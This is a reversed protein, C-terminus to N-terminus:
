DRVYAMSLEDSTPSGTYTKEIYIKYYGTPFSLPISYELLLVNNYDSHLSKIPTGDPKTFLISYTSSFYMLNDDSPDYVQNRLWALAFTFDTGPTLYINFTKPYSESNRTWRTSYDITLAKEIDLLGAGSYDDLGSAELTEISALFENNASATLIAITREPHLILDAKSEWLLAIAGTVIPAAYSTGQLGITDDIVMKEGPAVINPKDALDDYFESVSSFSAIENGEMNTAAVTIINSALGPSTISRNTCVDASNGASKVITLNYQDIVMDIYQSHSDYGVNCTKDLSISMNILRINSSIMKEIGRMFDESKNDKDLLYSYLDANYAVGEKGAIVAGVQTAHSTNTNYIYTNGEKSDRQISKSNHFEPSDNIYSLDIVGIRIPTGDDHLGSLGMVNHAYDINVVDLHYVDPLPINPIVGQECNPDDCLMDNSDILEDGNTYIVKKVRKNMYINQLNDTSILIKIVPTYRGQFLIEHDFDLSEIFKENIKEQNAKIDDSRKKSFDLIEEVSGDLPETMKSDYADLYIDVVISKENTTEIHQRLNESVVQEYRNMPINAFTRISSILLLSISLFALVFFKKLIIGRREKIILTYFFGIGIWEIIINLQFDTLSLCHMFRLYGFTNKRDFTM